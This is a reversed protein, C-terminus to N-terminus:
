NATKQSRICDQIRNAHEQAAGFEFNVGTYERVIRLIGKQITYVVNCIMCVFSLKFTPLGEVHGGM